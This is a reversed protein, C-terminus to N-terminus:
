FCGNILEEGSTIRGCCLAYPINSGCFCRMTGTIHKKLRFNYPIAEQTAFEQRNGPIPFMITVSRFFATKENAKMDAIHGQVEKWFDYILDKVMDLEAPSGIKKTKKGQIYKALQLSFFAQWDDMSTSDQKIMGYENSFRQIMKFSYGVKNFKM